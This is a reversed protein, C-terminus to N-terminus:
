SNTYYVSRRNGTIVIHRTLGCPCTDVCSETVESGLPWSHGDRRCDPMKIVRRMFWRDFAVSPPYKEAFNNAYVTGFRKALNDHGRAIAIAHGREYDYDWKNM